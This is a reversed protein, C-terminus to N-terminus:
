TAQINCTEVSSRAHAHLLCSTVSHGKKLRDSLTQPCDSMRGSSHTAAATRGCHMRPARKAQPSSSDVSTMQERKFCSCFRVKASVRKELRSLQLHLFAYNIYGEKMEEKKFRCIKWVMLHELATKMSVSHVHMPQHWNFHLESGRLSLCEGYFMNKKVWDACLNPCESGQPLYSLCQHSIVADYASPDVACKKPGSVLTDM